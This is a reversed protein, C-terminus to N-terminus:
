MRRRAVLYGSAPVYEGVRVDLLHDPLAVAEIGPSMNPLVRAYPLLTTYLDTLEQVQALLLLRVRGVLSVATLAFPMFEGTGLMHM